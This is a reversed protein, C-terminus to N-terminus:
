FGFSSSASYHCFGTNRSGYIRVLIKQIENENQSFGRKRRNDARNEHLSVGVNNM